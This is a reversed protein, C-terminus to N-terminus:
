FYPDAIVLTKDRRMFNGEHMDWGTINLDQSHKALKDVVEFWSEPPYGGAHQYISDSLSNDLLDPMDFGWDSMKDLVFMDLDDGLTQIGSHQGIAAMALLYPLYPAALQSHTVRLLKEMRVYLYNTGPVKRVYRSFKPLHQNSQNAQVFEVFNTYKSEDNFIKLVYAKAPHMAVTGEAGVGLSKWGHQVLIKKLKEQANINWAPVDRIQKSFTIEDLNMTNRM